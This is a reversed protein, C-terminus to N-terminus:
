PSGTSLTDCDKPQGSDMGRKFWRV